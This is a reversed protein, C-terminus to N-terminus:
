RISVIERLAVVMQDASPRGEPSETCALAIEMVLFAERRSRGEVHFEFFEFVGKRIEEKRELICHIQIPANPGALIDLVMSGFNYIDSKQSLEPPSDLSGKDPLKRPSSFEAPEALHAFGYDSLRATFDTNIFVNSSKINGHVNMQLDENHTPSQNHIFAIARAVNLIIVFRTHWDLPTHGHERTGALLDALSGMAYYDCLVVKTRKSYMYARLPVLYSSQGTVRALCEVRRGFEVKGVCVRRFRKACFVVGEVLVVKESIGFRSEGLVQVSSRLVEKLGLARFGSGDCFTVQMPFECGGTTGEEVPLQSYGSQSSSGEYGVSKPSKRDFKPRPRFARSLM